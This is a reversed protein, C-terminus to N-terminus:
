IEVFKRTATLIIDRDVNEVIRAFITAFLSITKNHRSEVSCMVQVARIMCYKFVATLQGEQKPWYLLCELLM